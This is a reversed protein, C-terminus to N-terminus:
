LKAAVKETQARKDRLMAAHNFRHIEIIQVPILLSRFMSVALLGIAIAAFGDSLIPQHASITPVLFVFAICCLHNLLTGFQFLLLHTIKNTVTRLESYSLLSFAEIKGTFVMTTIIFGSLIALVMICTRWFARDPTDILGFQLAAACACVGISFLSIFVAFRARRSSGALVMDSNAASLTSRAAGIEPLHRFSISMTM